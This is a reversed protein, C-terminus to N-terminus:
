TGDCRNKCCKAVLGAERQQGAEGLTTRLRNNFQCTASAKRPLSDALVEDDQLLGADDGAFADPPFTVIGNSWAAKGFCTPIQFSCRPLPVIGDFPKLLEDLISSLGEQAVRVSAPTMAHNSLEAMRTCSVPPVRWCEAPWM